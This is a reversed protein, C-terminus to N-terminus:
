IKRLLLVPLSGHAIEVLLYSIKLGLGTLTLVGVVIGSCACAAAIPLVARAGNEMALLIRKIGMRTDKQFASVIVVAIISYFGAKMATSGTVLMMVLVVIPLILHGRKKLVPWLKPLDEKPLGKIGYREAEFHVIIYM